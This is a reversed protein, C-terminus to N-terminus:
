KSQKDREKQIAEAFHLLDGVEFRHPKALNSLATQVATIDAIPVEVAPAAAKAPLGPVPEALLAADGERVVALEGTAKSKQLRWNREYLAVTAADATIDVEDIVRRDSFGRQQQAMRANLAPVSDALAQAVPMASQSVTRVAQPRACGALVLSLSLLVTPAVRM